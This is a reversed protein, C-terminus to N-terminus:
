RQTVATRAEPASTRTSLYEGPSYMTTYWAHFPIADTTRGNWPKGDSRVRHWGCGRRHVTVAHRGPTRQVRSAYPRTHIAGDRSPTATTPALRVSRMALVDLGLHRIPNDLYVRVGGHRRRRARAGATSRARGTVSCSTGTGRPTRAISMRNLRETPKAPNGGAPGARRARSGLRSGFPNAASRAPQSFRSSWGTRCNTLSVPPTPPDPERRAKTRACRFVVIRATTETAKLRTTEPPSLCISIPSARRDPQSSTAAHQQHRPRPSAWPGGAILQGLQTVELATIPQQLWPGSQGPM